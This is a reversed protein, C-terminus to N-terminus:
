NEPSQLESTHEEPRAYAARSPAIAILQFGNSLRFRSGIILKIGVEEAVTFAKVVGALSCEDTIAIAGYGLARARAVYEGPHSAGTLFTFNTITHLHAYPMRMPGPHSAQLG